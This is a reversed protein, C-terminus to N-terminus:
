ELRSRETDILLKRTDAIAGRVLHTIYCFGLLQAFCEMFLLRTMCIVNPGFSGSPEDGVHLLVVPSCSKAAEEAFASLRSSSPSADDFVILCFLGPPPLGEKGLRAEWLCIRGEAELAEFANEVAFAALLRDGMDLLINFDRPM